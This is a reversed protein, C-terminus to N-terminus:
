RVSRQRTQVYSLCRETSDWGAITHSIGGLGNEIASFAEMTRFRGAKSILMGILINNEALLSLLVKRADSGKTGSTQYPMPKHNSLNIPLTASGRLGCGVLRRIAALVAAIKRNKPM